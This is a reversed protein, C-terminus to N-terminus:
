PTFTSATASRRTCRSSAPSRPWYGCSSRRIIPPSSSRARRPSLPAASKAATRPACRFTRCTRSPRRCGARDHDVGARLQHAGSADDSQRFGAARRYLDIETELGAALRSNEAAAQPGARCTRRARARRDGVPRNQDQHRRALRLKGFLIDGLQKPSGPNVPRAPEANIEDELGAAEQAFEGSLRSLVDRDISIGRREM